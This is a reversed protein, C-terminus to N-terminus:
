LPRGFHDVPEAARAAGSNWPTSESWSVRHTLLELHRRIEDQYRPDGAVNERELPDAELDFFQVAQGAALASKPGGFVLKHRRTRVCKLRQERTPNVYECL